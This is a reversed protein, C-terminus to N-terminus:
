GWSTGGYRGEVTHNGGSKFQQPIAFSYMHNGNDGLAAGVDGRYQNAVASGAYQGDIYFDVSIPTNLQAWDAAWGAVTNCDVLDIYGIGNSVSGTRAGKLQPTSTVAEDVLISIQAKDIFLSSADANAHGRLLRFENKSGAKSFYGKLTYTVTSKAVSLEAGAYDSYDGGTQVFGDPMLVKLRFANAGDAVFLLAPSINLYHATIIFTVEEGLSVQQKDAKMTFRIPDNAFPRDATRQGPLASSVTRKASWRDPKKPDSKDGVFSFLGIALLVPLLWHLLHTAKLQSLLQKAM